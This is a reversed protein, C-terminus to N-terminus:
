NTNWTTGGGLQVAQGLEKGKLKMPFEPTNVAAAQPLSLKPGGIGVIEVTLPGM